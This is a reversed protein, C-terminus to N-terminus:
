KMLVLQRKIPLRSNNYWYALFVRVSARLKYIGAHGTNTTLNKLMNYDEAM